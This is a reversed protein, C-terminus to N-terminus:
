VTSYIGKSLKPTLGMATMRELIVACYRPEIEMCFCVRSALNAAAMTTGSGGFPEYVGDGPKGHNMLPRQMLELPKQTPHPLKEEKSGSMIHKPSAAEWVTHQEHGGVWRSTKGKRVAYWCPEHQWHYASRSMAAVTKSWMIQQRLEFGVRQLGAAVEIMYRDAHWVYAVDLSPFSNTPLLGIRLPTELSVRGM